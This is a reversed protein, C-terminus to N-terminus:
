LLKLAPFQARVFIIELRREQSRPGMCKTLVIPSLSFHSHQSWVPLQNNLHTQLTSWTQVPNLGERSVLLTLAALASFSGVMSVLPDSDTLISSGDRVLLMPLLFSSLMPCARLSPVKVRFPSVKLRFVSVSERFLPSVKDLCFLPSVNLRWPLPSVRPRFPIRFVALM